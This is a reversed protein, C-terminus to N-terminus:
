EYRLAVAPDVRMARRAPVYSAIIAVAILLLPVAIYIAPDTTSIEFLLAKLFRGTLFAGILGAAIGTLALAAARRLILGAIENKTAGLAIRVGIENTRQQVQYAILAYLGIAALLLAIAGFSAILVAQFRPTSVTRVLAADLTAIDYLAIDGDLSRLSGRVASTIAYPDRSARVILTVESMPLQAIPAYLAPEAPQQPGGFREGKVVGAITRETRWFNIKRGVPNENPFYRKALAENIVVVPPAGNRDDRTFARGRLMPMGLVDFYNASVPRIRVEDRPGESEPQGAIGFQSTFGSALPHNMAIATRSVGPIAGVRELAVDYFNTVKPWRPYESMPPMPYTADPLKMSFTVVNETSL